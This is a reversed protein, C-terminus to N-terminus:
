KIVINVIKGPVVIAKLSGHYKDVVLHEIESMLNRYREIDEKSADVPFDLTFRTKGNFSVSLTVSSEKLYEECFAPWPADCVTTTHGLAHWLEESLHPTFPALLVILQELM